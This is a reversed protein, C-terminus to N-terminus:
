VGLFDSPAPRHSQKGTRVFRAAGSFDAGHGAEVNDRLVAVDGSSPETSRETRPQQLTGRYEEADDHM